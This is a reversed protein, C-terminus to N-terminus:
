PLIVSLTIFPRQFRHGHPQGSITSAAAGGGTATHSGVGDSVCTEGSPCHAKKTCATATTSSCHGKGVLSLIKAGDSDATTGCSNGPGCDVHQLCTKTTDNSCVKTQTLKGVPLPSTTSTESASGYTNFAMMGIRIKTAYEQVLGSPPSATEIRVPISLMPAGLQAAVSLGSLIAPLNETTTVTTPPNTPDTVKPTDMDNCFNRHTQIMEPSTKSYGPKLVWNSGSLEFYQGEYGLACLLGPNGPQIAAPGSLCIGSACDTGASCAKYGEGSCTKISAYMEPCRKIVTNIDDLGIDTGNRYSWCAQMNQMFDIKTANLAEIASTTCPSFDGGTVGLICPGINTGGSAATCVGATKVECTGDNFAPIAGVCPGNDVKGNSSLCDANVNCSTQTKKSCTGKLATARVCDTNAECSRAANLTCAKVDCNANSVCAVGVKGSTCLQAGAATFCDADATCTKTADGSCKSAVPTVVCDAAVACSLSPKGSCTGSSTGTSALCDGVDKKIDANGGTAISEIAKQCKEYDYSTGAKSFIELFTQGGTSPAVANFPNNPGRVLFTLALAANPNTAGTAYNVFDAANADKIYGMGVCGRSEPQLFASVPNCSNGGGCDAAVLCAKNFDNSCVNTVYKGGTLVQKEVDFKSATLWNLYKGSAYFYRTRAPDTKDINLHLTNSLLKCFVKDAVESMACTSPITGAYEQFRSSSFDYQYNKAPDFYGVYSISARFTEDFCYYPNRVTTCTEGSPCDTSVACTQATTTSCRKYGRDDYALDYMSASNDLVMLLNPKAIEQIFPPVICYDNMSAALSSSSDLAAYLALALIFRVTTKM